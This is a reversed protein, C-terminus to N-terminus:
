LLNILNPLKHYSLLFGEREAGELGVASVSVGARLEVRAVGRRQGSDWDSVM